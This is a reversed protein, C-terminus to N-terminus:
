FSENYLTVIYQEFDSPHNRAVEVCWYISTDKNKAAHAEDKVVEEILQVSDEYVKPDTFVSCSTLAFILPFFFKM